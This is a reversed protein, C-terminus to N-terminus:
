KDAEKGQVAHMLERTFGILSGVQSLFNEPDALGADVLAAVTADDDNLSCTVLQAFLPPDVHEGRMNTTEFHYFDADGAVLGNEKVLRAALATLFFMVMAPHADLETLFEEIRELDGEFILRGFTYSQELTLTTKM